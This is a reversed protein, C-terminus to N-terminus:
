RTKPSSALKIVIASAPELNVAVEGTKQNSRLAKWRGRWKGDTQISAGGLTVGSTAGPNGGQVSLTMSEAKGYELPKEIQVETEKGHVDKNIL